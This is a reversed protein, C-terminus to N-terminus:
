SNAKEAAQSLIEGNWRLSAQALRNIAEYFFNDGVHETFDRQLYFAFNESNYVVRGGGSNAETEESFVADLVRDQPESRFRYILCQASLNEAAAEYEFGVVTEGLRAEVHNARDFFSAKKEGLRRFFAEVQQKAEERTM